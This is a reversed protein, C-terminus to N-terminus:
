ELPVQEPAERGALPHEFLFFKAQWGGLNPILGVVNDRAATIELPYWLPVIPVDEAIQRQIEEILRVREQPDSTEAQGVILDDVGAYYSFAPRPSNSSHFFALLQNTEVRTPSSLTIDYDGERQRARVTARELVEPVLEVGVEAWMAQVIPLTAVMFPNNNQM